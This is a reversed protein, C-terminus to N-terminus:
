RVRKQARCLDSHDRKVSGSFVECLRQRLELEELIDDAPRGARKGTSPRRPVHAAIPAYESVNGPYGGPVTNTCTSGHIRIYM